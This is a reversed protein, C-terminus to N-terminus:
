KEGRTTTTKDGAGDGWKLPTYPVVAGAGSNEVLANCGDQDGNKYPQYHKVHQTAETDDPM